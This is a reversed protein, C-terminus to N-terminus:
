MKWRLFNDARRDVSSLNIAKQHCFFHLINRSAACLSFSLSLSLYLLLFGSFTTCISKHCELIRDRTSRWLRVKTSSNELRCKRNDYSKKEEEYITNTSFSLFNEIMLEVNIDSTIPLYFFFDGYPQCNAIWSPGYCRYCRHHFHYHRHCQRCWCCRLTFQWFVMSLIPLRCLCPNNTGFNTQKAAQCKGQLRMGDNCETQKGFHSVHCFQKWELTIM